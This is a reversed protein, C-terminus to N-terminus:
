VKKSHTQSIKKYLILLMIGLIVSIAIIVLALTTPPIKTPPAQINFHITQCTVNNDTYITIQHTGYPLNTLTTNETLPITAKNDLSYSLTSGPKNITANLPINQTHYTKNQPEQISIDTNIVSFYVPESSHVYPGYLQGSNVSFSSYFVISHSGQDLGTLIIPSEGTITVNDQGNISYRFSKWLSYEKWPNNPTFEPNKTQITLSVVNAYTKNQPEIIIVEGPIVGWFDCGYCANAQGILATEAM